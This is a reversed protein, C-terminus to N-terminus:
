QHGFTRVHDHPGHAVPGYWSTQPHHLSKADMGEAQDIFFSIAMKYFEMPLRQEPHMRYCPIFGLFNRTLIRIEMPTIKPVANFITSERFPIEAYLNNRFLVFM